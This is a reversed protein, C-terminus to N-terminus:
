KRFDDYSYREFKETQAFTMKGTYKEVNRKIINDLELDSCTWAKEYFFNSYWSMEPKTMLDGYFQDFSGAELSAQVNYLRPDGIFQMESGFHSPGRDHNLGMKFCKRCAGCPQEVTGRICSSTIEEVGEIACIKRNLHNPTCATPLVVSLGLNELSKITNLYTSKNEFDFFKKGGSMYAVELIMGFNLHTIGLRDLLPIVPIAMGFDGVYGIHKGYIDSRMREIDTKVKIFTVHPFRSKMKEFSFLAKEQNLLSRSSIGHRQIYFCYEIKPNLYLCATSDFGTSYLLAHKGEKASFLSERTYKFGRITDIIDRERKKFSTDLTKGVSVNYSFSDVGIKFEM